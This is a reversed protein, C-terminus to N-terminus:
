IIDMQKRSFAYELYKQKIESCKGHPIPIEAHGAVTIAKYSISQIYAMNILFSRHPRLFEEYKALKRYLEDMSGVSELIKGNELHFVLTHGMVECYELRYLDIRAIGGKCRLVLSNVQAKEVEAVVSDLLQFFSREEGIPKLQYFFAGVMYSEVAYESSSTLFIIKAAQNYQRIEKAVNIGNQGPMIIDLFLIDWNRGKEIEHLLELPSHFAAYAMEQSREQRYKDLLGSVESLVPLDDDCLAIKIM